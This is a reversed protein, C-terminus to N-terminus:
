IEELYFTGFLSISELVFNEATGGKNVTEPARLTKLPSSGDACKKAASLSGNPFKPIQQKCEGVIAPFGIFKGVIEERRKHGHNYVRKSFVVLHLSFFRLFPL